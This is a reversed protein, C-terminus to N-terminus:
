GIIIAAENGYLTMQIFWGFPESKSFKDCIAKGSQLLEAHKASAHLAM